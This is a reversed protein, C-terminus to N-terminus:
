IARYARAITLGGYSINKTGSYQKGYESKEEKMREIQRQRRGNKSDGHERTKSSVRAVFEVNRITM